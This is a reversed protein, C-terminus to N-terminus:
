VHKRRKEELIEATQEFPEAISDALLDLPVGLADAYACLGALSVGGCNGSEIRVARDVSLGTKKAFLSLEVARAERLRKLALGVRRIVDDAPM